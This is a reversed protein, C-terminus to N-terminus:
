TKEVSDRRDSNKKKLESLKKRAVATPSDNNEIQNGGINM